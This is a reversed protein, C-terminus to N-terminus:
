DRADSVGGASQGFALWRTLKEIDEDIQTMLRLYPRSMGHESDRPANQLICARIARIGDLQKEIGMTSSLRDIM